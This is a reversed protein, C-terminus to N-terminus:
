ITEKLEYMCLVRDLSKVFEILYSQDLDFLFTHEQYLTDPTIDVTLICRGLAQMTIKINLYPELCDTAAEGSYTALIQKCEDMLKQLEPVRIIPGSTEVVASDATCRARVQLWNGDWYDDSDPFERGEIWLAFGGLKIDPKRLENM